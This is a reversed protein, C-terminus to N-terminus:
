CTSQGIGALELSQVLRRRTQLTLEAQAMSQLCVTRSLDLDVLRKRLSECKFHFNECALRDVSAGTTKARLQLESLEGARATTLQQQGATIHASLLRERENLKGYLNDLIKISVLLSMREGELEKRTRGLAKTAAASSMRFAKSQRPKGRSTAARFHNDRESILRDMEALLANIEDVDCAAVNKAVDSALAKLGRQVPEGYRMIAASDHLDPLAIAVTQDPPAPASTFISM